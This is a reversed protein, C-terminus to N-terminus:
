AGAEVLPLRVKSAGVGHVAFAIAKGRRALADADLCLRCEVCTVEGGTTENPCPVVLGRMGRVRFARRSPFRKVVLAPVYGLRQAARAEAASEVSALVSISSWAGRRIERWRHTFTWVDGGGRYRWTDVAWALRQAAAESAADGGVHLRLDRGGRAGDQPVQARKFAAEILAAEADAVADGGKGRAADDLSRALQATFGATVYCAGARFRCSPPCTAEISSYTAACYPGIPVPRPRSRHPDLRVPSLKRDASAFLLRAGGKGRGGAHYSSGTGSTGPTWTRSEEQEFGRRSV